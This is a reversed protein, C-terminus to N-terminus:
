GPHLEPRLGRYRPQCVRRFGYCDTGSNRRASLGLSIWVRRPSIRGGKSTFLFLPLAASPEHPKWAKRGLSRLIGRGRLPLGHLGWSSSRLRSQFDALWRPLARTGSQAVRSTYRARPLLRRHSCSGSSRGVIRRPRATDPRPQRLTFAGANARPGQCRAVTRRQAGRAGDRREPDLAQGQRGRHLSM